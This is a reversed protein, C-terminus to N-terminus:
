FRAWIQTGISSFDNQCWKNSIKDM